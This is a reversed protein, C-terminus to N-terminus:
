PGLPEPVCAAHWVSIDVDILWTIGGPSAAALRRGIPDFALRARDTSGLPIRALPQRSAIDWLTVVGGADISGELGTSGEVSWPETTVIDAPPSVATPVIRAGGCISLAHSRLASTARNALRAGKKDEAVVQQDRDRLQATRTPFHIALIAACHQGM